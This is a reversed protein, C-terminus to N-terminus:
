NGSTVEIDDSRLATPRSKQVIHCDKNKARNGTKGFSCGDVEGTNNPRSVLNSSATFYVIWLDQTSM